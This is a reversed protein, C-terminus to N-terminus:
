KRDLYLQKHCKICHNVDKYFQETRKSLKCIRCLKTFPIKYPLEDKTISGRDLAKKLHDKYNM